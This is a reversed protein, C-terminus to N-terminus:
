YHILHCCRPITFAIRHDIGSYKWTDSNIIAYFCEESVQSLPECCNPTVPATLDRAPKACHRLVHTLMRDPSFKGCEGYGHAEVGAIAVIALLLVLCILKKM